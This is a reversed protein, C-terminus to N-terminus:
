KTNQRMEQSQQQLKALAQLQMQRQAASLGFEDMDLARKRVVGTVAPVVAKSYHDVKKSHQQLKVMAQMQLRRQTESLGFEDLELARKRGGGAAVPVAPAKAHDPGCKQVHAQVPAVRAKAQPKAASSQRQQASQKSTASSELAFEQPTKGLWGRCNPAGCLCQSSTLESPMLLVCGCFVTFIPQHVRRVKVPKKDFMEMQYDFCLETGAPIDKIAFLGVRMAGRVNWKQM